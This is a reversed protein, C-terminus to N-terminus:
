LHSAATLHPSGMPLDRRAGSYTIGRLLGSDSRCIALKQSDAKERQLESSLSGIVVRQPLYCHLLAVCHLATLDQLYEVKM